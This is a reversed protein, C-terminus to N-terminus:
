RGRGRGRQGAYGGQNWGQQFGQPNQQYGQPNQQFGQPSQPFGQMNWNGMM